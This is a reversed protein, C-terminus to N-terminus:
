TRECYNKAIFLTEWLFIFFARFFVFSGEVVVVILRLFFFQKGRESVAKDEKPLIEPRSM